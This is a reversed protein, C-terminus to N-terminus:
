QVKSALLAVLRVAIEALREFTVRVLDLVLRVRAVCVVRTTPAVHQEIAEDLGQMVQVGGDLKM